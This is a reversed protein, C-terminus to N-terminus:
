INMELNPLNQFVCTHLGSSWDRSSVHLNAAM